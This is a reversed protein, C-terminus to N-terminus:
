FDKNLERFVGDDVYDCCGSLRCGRVNNDPWRLGRLLHSCRTLVNIFETSAGCCAPRTDAEM